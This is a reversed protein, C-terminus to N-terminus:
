ILNIVEYYYEFDSHFLKYMDVLSLVHLTRFDADVLAYDNAKNNKGTKLYRLRDRLYFDLEKLSDITNIYRFAYYAWGFKRTDILYSKYLKWNLRNVIHYAVSDFSKGYMEIDKRGAKVWRKITRKLKNKANTSIDVKKGDTALGLFEIEDNPNFYCYKRENLSLGYRTLVGKIYALYKDRELSTKALVVIDDSYRAYPVGLKEFYFDVDRLCYNAMLSGFACGPILSKYETMPKGKYLIDDNEYLKNMTKRIGTNVGFLETLMESVAAKSVSNFYSSIDLRVGYYVGKSLEDRIYLVADLTRVNKKYSFCRSSIKNEFEDSCARYLVGLLYRDFESYMYVIRKKTTGVKRLELKEPVSWNYEGSLLQKIIGRYKETRLLYMVSEVTTESMKNLFLLRDYTYEWYSKDYLRDELSM